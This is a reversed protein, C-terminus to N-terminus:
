FPRLWKYAARSVGMEAAVYGAPRGHRGRRVLERRGWVTLRANRHM